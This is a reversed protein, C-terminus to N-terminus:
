LKGEKRLRHYDPCYKAVEQYFAASHDPHILHCLEHVVVYNVFDKKQYVLSTNFIVKKQRPYCKGWCGQYAKFDIKEVSFHPEQRQYIQILREIEDRLQIFLWRQLRHLQDPLYLDQDKLIIERQNKFHLTRRIGWLDIYGGDKYDVPYEYHQTQQILTDMHQALFSEIYQVPCGYPASVIVEGQKVKVRLHKMSKYELSYILEQNEKKFIRKEKIM